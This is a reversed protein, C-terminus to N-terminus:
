PLISRRTTQTIRQRGYRGRWCSVRVPVQHHGQPIRDLWVGDLPVVHTRGDPRRTALWYQTAGELDARVTTWALKRSARGYERPLDLLEATPPM